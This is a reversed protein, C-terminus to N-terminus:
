QSVRVGAADERSRGAVRRVQGIGTLPLTRVPISKFMKTLITDNSSLTV